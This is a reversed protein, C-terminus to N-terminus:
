SEFKSNKRFKQNKKQCKGPEARNRIIENLIKKKKVNKTVIGTVIGLISLQILYRYEIIGFTILVTDIGNRVVLYFYQM